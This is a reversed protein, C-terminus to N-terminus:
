HFLFYLYFLSSFPLNPPTPGFCLKPVHISMLGKPHDDSSLNQSSDVFEEWLLVIFPFVWTPGLVVCTSDKFPSGLNPLKSSLEWSSDGPAALWHYKTEHIHITEEQQNWAEWNIGERNWPNEEGEGWDISYKRPFKENALLHWSFSLVTGRAEMTKNKDRKETKFKCWLSAETTRSHSRIRLDQAVCLHNGPCICAQSLRLSRYSLLCLSAPSVCTLSQSM